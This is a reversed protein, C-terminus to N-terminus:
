LLLFVAILVTVLFMNLSVKFRLNQLLLFTIDQSTALRQFM